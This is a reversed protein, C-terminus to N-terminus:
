STACLWLKPDHMKRLAAVCQVELYEICKLRSAANTADVPSRLEALVQKWVLHRTVGDPAVIVEEEMTYRRWAAFLPQEDAISKFIDLEDNLFMSGDHQAQVFFQEVLDLARGM